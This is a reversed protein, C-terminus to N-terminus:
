RGGCPLIELLQELGTAVLEGVAHATLLVADGLFAAVEDVQEVAFGFDKGGFVVGVFDPDGGHYGGLDGAAQFGVDM